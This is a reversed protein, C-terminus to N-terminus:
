VLVPELEFINLAKRTSLTYKDNFMALPEYNGHLQIESSQTSEVIRDGGNHYQTVVWMHGEGNWNGIVCFVNEASIFNRLLSCLLISLCDCDGHKLLITELPTAWYDGYEHEYPALTHVYDQCAAVFDPAQILTRALDRVLPESPTILQRIPVKANSYRVDAGLDYYQTLDFM